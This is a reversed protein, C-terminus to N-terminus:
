RRAQQEIHDLYEALLWCFAAGVLAPRIDKTYFSLYTGLAMQAVAGTVIVKTVPKM